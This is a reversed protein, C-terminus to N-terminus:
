QEGSPSSRPQSGAPHMPWAQELLWVYERVSLPLHKGYSTVLIDPVPVTFSLAIHAPCPRPRRCVSVIFKRGPLMKPMESLGSCHGFGPEGAILKKSAPIMSVRSSEVHCRTRLPNEQHVSAFYEKLGTPKVNSNPQVESCLFYLNKSHGTDDLIALLITEDYKRKKLM